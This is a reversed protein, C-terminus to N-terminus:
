LAGDVDFGLYDVVERPLMFRLEAAAQYTIDYFNDCLENWDIGYVECLEGIDIYPVEVWEDRDRRAQIAAALRHTGTYATGGPGGEIVIPPGHWGRVAMDAALTDVKGQDVVPHPPTFTDATTYTIAAIKAAVSPNVSTTM